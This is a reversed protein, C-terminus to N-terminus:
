QRMQSWRGLSVLAVAYAISAGAILVSYGTSLAVLPAAAAAVVTFFANVGFAWPVLAPRKARLRELGIPFPMGMLLGLPAVLAAAVILRVTFAQGVAAPLGWRSVAGAILVVAPLAWCASALWRAAGVRRSLGAGIGSSVLLLSLVVTLAYTPHGLYFTLRQLLAVEVLLYGIGLAAFTLGAWRRGIFHLDSRGRLPRLIGIAAAVTVLVLTLLLVGHGIPVTTGYVLESSRLRPVEVLNKLRYYNFFFPAEDTAPDLRYPYADVYARRSAASGVLALGFPDDAPHDPDLALSFRNDAAFARLRELADAPIPANCALLTAWKRARLVAIHRWPEEVGRAELAREATVALRLTERPPELILRSVSLCGGPTLHDLYDEFASGTYVYAEAVSYAGSSLATFTDVGALQIVDYRQQSARVFARGESQHLEVEPRDALHGVYARYKGTILSLIGPNIEAGVVRSAGHALAMMVDVGGGVGIILVSPGGPPHSERPGFRAGRLAWVAATSAHPLFTLEAPDSEVKHMATPAAGDQTLPHSKWRGAGVNVVGAVFPSATVEHGVDIRGHTTWVRHEVVRIGVYPRHFLGLEKTPAPEVWADEDHILAGGVVLLAAAMLVSRMLVKTGWAFLVGALALLSVCGLLVGLAGFAPIAFACSAGFVGGGILDAAYVSGARGSWGSLATGLVLGVAAFPVAVLLVLLLLSFGVSPSHLLELPNCRLILAILVASLFALAGMSSRRVLAERLLMGSPVAGARRSLWAGAVGFGLLAIGVVLYAFHHWLTISFIRTFAIQAAIAAGSALGIALRDLLRPGRDEGGSEGVKM